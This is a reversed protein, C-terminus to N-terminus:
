YKINLFDLVEGMGLNNIIYDYQKPHTEKLKQFRNPEKERHCGYGCFMCGTRQCGTTYYKNKNDKMVEGYVSAIPIKYTDIYELIDQETWFAIPTSTPIKNNFANCGNKIYQQRRLQSEEAMTGIIPAKGSSKYYKHVPRKKMVTCCKDSIKFPADLLFKWQTYNFRSPNGDKDKRDGNLKNIQYQYGRRAEYICKSVEKGIIPYGYEELVKDFRKDPRLITVNDFSKVFKRIEPYELGTDVFVAEINPYLDRVLHLLVTSDKGGSFSIYCGNEGFHEVWENIRRQTYRIKDQLTMAQRLKLTYKDIPM